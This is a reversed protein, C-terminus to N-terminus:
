SQAECKAIADITRQIPRTQEQHYKLTALLEDSQAKYDIHHNDIWSLATAMFSMFEVPMPNPLEIGYDNRYPYIRRWFARIVKQVQDDTITNLACYNKVPEASPPTPASLLAKFKNYTYISRIEGRDCRDCFEQMAERWGEPVVVMAPSQQAPIPRADFISDFKNMLDLDAVYAAEGNDAFSVTNTLEIYAIRASNFQNDLESLKSKLEINELMLKTESQQVSECLRKYGSASLEASELKEQLEACKNAADVLSSELRLVYSKVEDFARHFGSVSPEFGTHELGWKLLDDLLVQSWKELNLQNIM